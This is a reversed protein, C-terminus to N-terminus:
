EGSFGSFSCFVSLLIQCATTLTFPGCLALACRSPHITLTAQWYHQSACSHSSTPQYFLVMLVLTAMKVVSILMAGSLQCTCRICICLSARHSSSSAHRQRTVLLATLLDPAIPTMAPEAQPALRRVRKFQFPVSSAKFSFSQRLLVFCLLLMLKPDRSTVSSLVAVVSENDCFFEVRRSSWQPGWLYAAM